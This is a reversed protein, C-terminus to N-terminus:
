FVRMTDTTNLSLFSFRHLGGSIASASEPDLVLGAFLNQFHWLDNFPLWIDGSVYTEVHSKQIM